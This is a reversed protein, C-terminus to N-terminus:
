APRCPQRAAGSSGRGASRATGAHVPRGSAGMTQQPRSVGSATPFATAAARGDRTRLSSAASARALPRGCRAGPLSRHIAGPCVLRIAAAPLHHHRVRQDAVRTRLDAGHAPEHRPATARRLRALILALAAATTASRDLYELANRILLTPDFTFQYYSPADFPGFAHSYSRLLFYLPLAVGLPWVQHATARWTGSERASWATWGALFFPLVIAEEKSLLALLCWGAARWRHGRLAALTALLAFLTLFLATRGSIWLLAMGVARLNFAWAAAGVLAATSSLGFALALRWALVTCAVLLVVNTLAFPFAHLGFLAYNVSFSVLVLPRYFGIDAALLRPLDALSGVRGVEIWRFDDRVFGHGIDPLYILCFAAALVAAAIAQARTV